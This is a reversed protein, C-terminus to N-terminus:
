DEYLYALACYVLPPPPNNKVLKGGDFGVQDRRLSEGQLNRKSKYRDMKDPPTEKSFYIFLM